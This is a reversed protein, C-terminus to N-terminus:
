EGAADDVFLAVAHSGNGYLLTMETLFDKESRWFPLAGLRKPMAAHLKSSPAPALKEPLTGDGWFDEHALPLAQPQWDPIDEEQDAQGAQLHDLFRERDMGRLKLLLFPDQDFAEALLFYVAAIHKCPNSWDPCSCDTQLDNLRSPFLALEADAFLTEIDEPMDGGLLLAAFIPEQQIKELVMQWAEDDFTTLKISVQYANSRSGQVCAKILGSEIDLSAVQGKRAYARGRTLRTGINFSNLVELWRKGWWRSAFAGRKSQAKIGGQVAKATTTKFHWGYRAM